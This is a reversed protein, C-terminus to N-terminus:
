WRKALWKRLFRLGSELEIEHGGEHIVLEIRESIGLKDYHERAVNFEEVVQPWWAIRDEKGHQIQLPRPCILSVVDSDTFETLWGRFFAHEEKTVLFSVYRDDPIVMKNRRHNFWATVIGCPVRPELPMWFMTAMGGLSIGWMGVREEDIRPDKLVEDLLLRIRDFEIGPLTTDALRALREIRNRKEVTRLNFPALVAFGEALLAHGYDHYLAPDDGIGFVREPYSGIGHQAIVLPVPSTAGKPVVLLGEAKVPGLPLTLWEAGEADVLSHPHREIPGTPEFGPPSFIRRYRERNPEVSELFEELSEYSREWRDNARSAYDRVLVGRFYEELEESYAENRLEILQDREQSFLFSGTLLVFGLFALCNRFCAM